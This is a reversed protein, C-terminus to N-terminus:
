HQIGVGDASGTQEAKQDEDEECQQSLDNLVVVFRWISLLRCLWVCLVLMFSGRSL